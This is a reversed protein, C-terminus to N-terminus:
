LNSKKKQPYSSTAERLGFFSLAFPKRSEMGDTDSVSFSFSLLYTLMPDFGVPVTEM